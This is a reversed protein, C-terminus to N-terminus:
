KYAVHIAAIGFFRRQIDVSSFGSELLIDALDEADYFRPITHSLYSYGASSGSILGGIRRVVLGIYSHFMWRVIRSQPQSTEVNVFRGGPKLVRTFDRFCRLLTDRNININRTGFAITILDLSADAFPLARADGLVFSIRGTEKKAAATRLMGPTFDLAVVHAKGRSLRDLYVATEGTGTCIDLWKRGGDSVAIRAAQRRWPIDLGMTLVHNVLEYTRSVESFIKQIGKTM